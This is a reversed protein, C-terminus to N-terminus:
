SKEQHGEHTGCLRDIDHRPVAVFGLNHTGADPSDLHCILIDDGQQPIGSSVLLEYTDGRPRMGLQHPYWQAYVGVYGSM